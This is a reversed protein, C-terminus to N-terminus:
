ETTEEERESSRGIGDGYKAAGSGIKGDQVGIDFIGKEGLFEFLCIAYYGDAAGLLDSEVVVLLSETKSKAAFRM